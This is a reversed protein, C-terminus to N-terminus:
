LSKISYFFYNKQVQRKIVLEAHTELFAYSGLPSDSRHEWNTTSDSNRM